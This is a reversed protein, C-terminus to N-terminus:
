KDTIKQLHVCFYRSQPNLHEVLVVGHILSSLQNIIKAGPRATAVREKNARRSLCLLESLGSRGQRM